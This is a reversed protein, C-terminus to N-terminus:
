RSDSGLLFAERISHRLIDDRRERFEFMGRGCKKQVALHTEQAHAEAARAESRVARRTSRKRAGPATPPGKATPRGWPIASGSSAARIPAIAKPPTSFPGPWASRQDRGRYAIIRSTLEHGFRVVMVLHEPDRPVGIHLRDLVSEPLERELIVGIAVLFRARAVTEPFDGLGIRDQAIRLIPRFIVSAVVRSHRAQRGFVHEAADIEFFDKASKTEIEAAGVTNSRKNRRRPAARWPSFRSTVTLM